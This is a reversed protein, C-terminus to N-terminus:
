VRDGEGADKSLVARGVVSKVDQVSSFSAKKLFLFMDLGLGVKRSTSELELRTCRDGTM